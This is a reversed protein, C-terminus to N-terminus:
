EKEMNKAVQADFAELISSPLKAKQKWSDEGYVGINDLDFVEFNIRKIARKNKFEFNFNEADKFRSDLILSHQDHGFKQWEAFSKGNFDYEEGGTNWYMNNDMAIDIKEWAGKM